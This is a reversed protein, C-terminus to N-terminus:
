RKGDTRLSRRLWRLSSWDCRARRAIFRQPLSCQRNLPARDDDVGVVVHSRRHGVVIVIQAARRGRRIAGADRAHLLATHAGLKERKVDLGPVDGVAASGPAREVHDIRDIARDLPM